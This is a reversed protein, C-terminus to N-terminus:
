GFVYTWGPNVTGAPDYAFAYWMICVGVDSSFMCFCFWPPDYIVDTVTEYGKRHERPVNEIKALDWPRRDILLAKSVKPYRECLWTLGLLLYYYFMVVGLFAMQKDGFSRPRKPPLLPPYPIMILFFNAIFWGWLWKEWPFWRDLFVWRIFLWLVFRVITLLFFVMLTTTYVSYFNQIFTFEFLRCIPARIVVWVQDSLNAILVAQAVLTALFLWYEFWELRNILRFAKFRVEQEEIPVGDVKLYRLAEPITKYQEEFTSLFTVLEIIAFSSVFMMGMVQAIPVGSFAALQIAAPLTGVAFFLWRPWAATNSCPPLDHETTPFPEEFSAEQCRKTDHREDARAIIALRCAKLPSIHHYISTYLVRVLIALGDAFCFLPSSCLFVRYRTSAGCIRGSPQAMSNSALCFMIWIM